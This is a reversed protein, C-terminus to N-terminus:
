RAWSAAEGRRWFRASQIYQFIHGSREGGRTRGAAGVGPLFQFFDEGTEALQGARRDLGFLEVLLREDLTDARERGHAARDPQPRRRARQPRHGVDVPGAGFDGGVGLGAARM